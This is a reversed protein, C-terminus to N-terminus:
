AIFQFPSEFYKLTPFNRDRESVNFNSGPWPIGATDWRIGADSEPAYVTTVKYQMIVDNTLALFGHAIGPPIYLINGLEPGLEFTATKQFTPSGVRLDVIADLVKGSLCYVLKFHDHPPVQFHLGRLVGQHSVSYYEESFEVVLGHAKFIESHFTKVFVGRSDKRVVPFLQYCGPISTQEIRM